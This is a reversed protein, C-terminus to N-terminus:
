FEPDNVSVTLEFSRTWGDPSLQRHGASDASIVALAISLFDWARPEPVLKKRQVEHKLSNGISGQSGKNAQGYLIVDLDSERTDFNFDSLACTIKM